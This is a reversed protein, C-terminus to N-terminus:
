LQDLDPAGSRSPTSLDATTAEQRGHSTLGSGSRDSAPQRGLGNAESVEGEFTEGSTLTARFV